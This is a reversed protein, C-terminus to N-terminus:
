VYVSVKFRLNGIPPAAYPVGLYEEVSVGIYRSTIKGQIKGYRTERVPNNYSYVHTYVCRLLLVTISASFM